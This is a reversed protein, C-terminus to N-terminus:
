RTVVIYTWVMDDDGKKERWGEAARSELAAAVADTFSLGGQFDGVVSGVDLSRAERVSSLSRIINSTNLLAISEVPRVRTTIPCAEESKGVKNEDAM